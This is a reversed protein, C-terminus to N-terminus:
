MCPRPLYYKEGSTSKTEYVKIWEQEKPLYHMKQCAQTCHNCGDCRRLDIVMAWQQKILDKAPEAAQVQEHGTGLRAVTGGIGATLVAAGALKLFQRRDLQQKGDNERNDSM